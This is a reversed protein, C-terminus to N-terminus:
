LNKKFLTEEISNETPMDGIGLDIISFGHHSDYFVNSKGWSIDLSLGLWRMEQIAEWFTRYHEVPIDQIEQKSYSLIGKWYAIQQVQYIEGNIEKIQLTKKIVPSVIRDRYLILRSANDYGRKSLRAVKDDELLFVGKNNSGGDSINEGLQRENSLINPQIVYQIDRQVELERIKKESPYRPNNDVEWPLLEKVQQTYEQVTLKQNKYSQFLQKRKEEAQFEMNKYNEIEQQLKNINEQFGSKQLLSFLTDQTSYDQTDKKQIYDKTQEFSM